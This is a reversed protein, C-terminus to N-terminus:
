RSIVSRKVRGRMAQSRSKHTTEKLMKRAAHQSVGSSAAIQKNHAAAMFLRVQSANYPM